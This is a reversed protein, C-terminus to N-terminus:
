GDPSFAVAAVTTSDGPLHQLLKGTSADWLIVEGATTLVLV